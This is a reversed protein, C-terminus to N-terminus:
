ANEVRRIRQKGKGEVREIIKRAELDLKVSTVWWGPSTNAYIEAPVFPEVLKTLDSYYVGEENAPIVELLATRYAEYNAKTMRTGQKTPDPHLGEIMEKSM